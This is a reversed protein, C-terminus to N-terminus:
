STFLDHCVIRYQLLFRVCRSLSQEVLKPFAFDNQRVHTQSLMPCRGSSAKMVHNKIKVDAITSAGQVWGFKNELFANNSSVTITGVLTDETDFTADYMIDVMEVKTRWVDSDLLALSSSSSTSM